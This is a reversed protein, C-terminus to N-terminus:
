DELNEAAIKVMKSVIFINVVVTSLVITAM